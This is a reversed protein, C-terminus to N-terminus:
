PFRYDFRWEGIEKLGLVVTPAIERPDFTLLSEQVADPLEGWDPLYEPLCEELRDRGPVGQVLDVLTAIGGYGTEENPTSVVNGLFLLTGHSADLHSPEQPRLTNMGHLALVFAQAPRHIGDQGGDGNYDRALTTSALQLYGRTTDRVERERIGPTSQRLAAFEWSFCERALPDTRVRLLAEYVLHLQRGLDAMGEDVTTGDAKWLQNMAQRSELLRLLNADDPSLREIAEEISTYVPIAAVYARDLSNLLHVYTEVADNYIGRALAIQEREVTRRAVRNAETTALLGMAAALLAVIPAVLQSPLREWSGSRRAALAIRVIFLISLLALVATVVGLIWTPM